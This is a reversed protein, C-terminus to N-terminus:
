VAVLHQQSHERAADIIRSVTKHHVGLDSAIRNLATGQAHASLVSEVVAVPKTTAGADVVAQALATRDAAANAIQNLASAALQVPEVPASEASLAIKDPRASHPKQPTSTSPTSAKVAPATLARTRRAPKDGLPVLMMTSIAVTTDILAPFISAIAPSYGIVLMLDRLALFSVAFAGAGILAVAAVACGYVWGSAGARVALAIGHVAALLVIPPVAAAGIQIVVKPIYPLLAHVENGVLSVLGDRATHASGCQGSNIEVVCSIEVVCRQLAAVYSTSV